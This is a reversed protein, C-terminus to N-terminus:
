RHREDGKAPAGAAPAGSAPATPAAARAGPAVGVPHASAPRMADQWAAALAQVLEGFNLSTDLTLDIRTDSPLAIPRDMAHGALVDAVRIIARQARPPDHRGKIHFIVGLRDKPLSNLRADLSEFALNELAQYAFDQAAGGAPAAVAVAGAAPAGLATRAISLRGGGVSSLTGERVSVGSSGVSFPIQGEVVAELKIQDALSTAALVEGLNVRHIALVGDVGADAAPDLVIPGLSVLGGALGAQTRRLTLVGDRVDFVADLGTLPTISAIEAITLRQGPATALPALSTFVVRTDLRTVPGTPGTMGVDRVDLEGGSRERGAAGWEYWGNFAVQGTVERAAAVLPTLDAPQLGGPAFTLEGTDVDLRVPGGPSAALTVRALRHKARDSVRFAGRWAEGGGGAEGEFTLPGFRLPDALDVLTASGLALRAEAMGAEAGAAEFTADGGRVGLALHPEDARVSELRGTVRWQGASAAVLPGSGPCLRLSVARALHDGSGLREATVPACGLLDARLRGNASVLHVGAEAGVGNALDTDLKGHGRLTAQLGAPGAVLDSAQLSLSPLGGGSLSAGGAGQARWGRASTLAGQGSVLLAAGSAADLRAPAALALRAGRGDLDLRWQPAEFRMGGLAAAVPGAFPRAGSVLPLADVLRRILPPSLGGRGAARGVLTAHGSWVEKDRSMSGGSLIAAASLGAGAAGPVIVRDAALTVTGRTSVSLAQGERVLDLGRLVAGAALGTTKIGSGDASAARIEATLGGTLRQRTATAEALGEVTVTVAAGALRSAGWAGSLGEATLRVGAPGELRDPRDPWPVESRVSLTAVQATDAGRQVRTAGLEAKAILRSGQRVVEVVGGDGSVTTGPLVQRFPALGGTFTLRRRDAYAGDGTLVLVGGPTTLRAVGDVIAIDPLPQRTPPQRRAWDLLGALQGLDLTGDRLRARLRPRVLRVATPTLDLARGSWPGSLAYTVDVRDITLDPDRPDGLRVRATLARDSLATVEVVADAGHARLWAVALRGALPRSLPPAGVLAAVVVLLSVAGAVGAARRRRANAPKAKSARRDANGTPRGPM